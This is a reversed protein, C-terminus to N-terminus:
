PSLKKPELKRRKRKQKAGVPGARHKLQWAIVEGLPTDPKKKFAARQYELLKQRASIEAQTANAEDVEGKVGSLMISAIRRQAKHSLQKSRHINKRSSKANEGYTNRRDRTLSLRKKEQPSKVKSMKKRRNYIVNCAFQVCRWVGKAGGLNVM